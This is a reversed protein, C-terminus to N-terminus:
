SLLTLWIIKEIKKTPCYTLPIWTYEQQCSYIYRQGKIGWAVRPPPTEYCSSDPSASRVAVTFKVALNRINKQLLNLAGNKKVFQAQSVWKTKAKFRSRLPITQTHWLYSWCIQSLFALIFIDRGAKRRSSVFAPCMCLLHFFLLASWIQLRLRVSDKNFCEGGDRACGGVCVPVVQGLDLLRSTPAWLACCKQPGNWDFTNVM